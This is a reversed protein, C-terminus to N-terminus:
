NIFFGFVLQKSSTVPKGGPLGVNLAAQYGFGGSTYGALQNDFGHQPFQASNPNIMSGNRIRSGSIIAGPAIDIIKVPGVVWYDGNAYQGCPYAKDFTWTIAFRKISSCSGAPGPTVVPPVDVVEGALVKCTANVYSGSYAGLVGNTCLARQNESVCTQGFDVSSSQYM